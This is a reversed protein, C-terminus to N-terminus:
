TGSPAKSSINKYVWKIWLCKRRSGIYWVQRLLSAAPIDSITRIGLGGSEIPTCIKSWAVPKLKRSDDFHGWFFNRTHKELTSICAKPLLFSTSWYIHLYNITSRILELRGAYSLARSEWGAFRKRLKEAM